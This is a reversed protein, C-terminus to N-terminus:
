KKTIAGQLQTLVADAILRHGKNNPHLGDPMMNELETDSIGLWEEFLKIYIHGQDCVAKEIINEYEVQNSRFYLKDTKYPQVKHEVVPVQGVVAIVLPRIRNDVERLLLPFQERFEDLTTENRNLSPRLRSDNVGVGIVVVEFQSRINVGLANFSDYVKTVTSGGKALNTIQPKQMGPLLESRVINVWENGPEAAKGEVISDGLALISKILEYSM